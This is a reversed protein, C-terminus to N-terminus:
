WNAGDPSDANKSSTGGGKPTITRELGLASLLKLFSGVSSTAPRNELASITKPFLGVLKGAEEQTLGRARRVSKLAHSLQGPTTILYHM